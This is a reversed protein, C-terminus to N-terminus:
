FESRNRSCCAWWLTCLLTVGVYKGGCCCTRTMGTSVDACQNIKSARAKRCYAIGHSFVVNALHLWLSNEFTSDIGDDRRELRDPPESVFAAGLMCHLNSRARFCVRMPLRLIVVGLGVCTRLWVLDGCRYRRVYTCASALQCRRFMSLDISAVDRMELEVTECCIGLAASASSTLAMVAQVDDADTLAESLVREFSFAIAM